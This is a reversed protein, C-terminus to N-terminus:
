TNQLYKLRYMLSSTDWRGGGLEQIEKYHEDIQQTLPLDIGLKEVENKVINLDKRMLDVAFGHEYEGDAMTRYRNEMQWSGVAGQSITEILKDIDLNASQAFLLAESLSQLLGGLCIQNAMKALQGAGADGMLQSFRAYAALVSQLTEFQTQDGGCMITLQGNEAGAQGGSVPADFFISNQASAAQALERALEPSATTHDVLYAGESLGAFVGDDGYCVSRVDDDNGVCVFVFDTDTAADRPSTFATGSYQKVWDESVSTTRNFVNVTHGAKTLHGAMPFGMVGLGIFAVNAM